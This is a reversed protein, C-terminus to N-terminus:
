SHRVRKRAPQDDDHASADNGDNEEASSSEAEAYSQVLKGSRSPQTRRPAAQVAPDGVSPASSPAQGKDKRPRGRKRPAAAAAGSGEKRPKRVKKLTADGAAAVRQRVALKREKDSVPAHLAALNTTGIIAVHM